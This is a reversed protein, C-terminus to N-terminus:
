AEVGLGLALGLDIRNALRQYALTNLQAQLDYRQQQVSLLELITALGNRYRQQYNLLNREASQLATSIHQYQLALSQEQSIAQDVEVVASLLLERYAQYSQETQLEAIETAARLRGGQYLPATLQTLISWAPAAFLAGRANSASDNLLLQLNLEPLLDKYAVQSRLDNAQIAAFAAQLDPRRAMTQTPLGALPLVVEPYDTPTLLEVPVIQGTLLRLDNQQRQLDEKAAVLRARSSAVSTRASDVDELTGLGNRYRQAIFLETQEFDTLRQQEIEISHQLAILNLWARMIEAALTDMASQYLWQQEVIDLEAASVSDAIKGWLDLQWGVNLQSSFSNDSSQREHSSSVSVQPRQDAQTQRLQVQRIQLTLLTQQLGPHNVRAQEILTQLAPSDLLDTLTSASQMESIQQWAEVTSQEEIIQAQYNTREPMVSCGNLTLLMLSVLGWVPNKYQQCSGIVAM